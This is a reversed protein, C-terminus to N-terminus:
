KSERRKLSGTDGKDNEAQSGAKDIYEIVQEVQFVVPLMGDFPVARLAGASRREIDSGV